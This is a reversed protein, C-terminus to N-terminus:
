EVQETAPYVYATDEEVMLVDVTRAGKRTVVEVQYGREVITVRGVELNPDCRIMWQVLKKAEGRSLNSGFASRDPGCGPWGFYQCAYARGDYRLGPMQRCPARHNSYRGQHHGSRYGRWPIMDWAHAQAATGAALILGLMLAIVPNRTM